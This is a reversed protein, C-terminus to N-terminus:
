GRLTPPVEVEYVQAHGTKDSTFVVYKGDPSFSPHPHTHQPAYVKIPGKEYPFPGKWHEGISSAEPHCLTIPKGIGDRPNFLQLGIDPFNTDAVMLTGYRNCIAHWANFSAVKRVAGTDAHVALIGRPWDIMVVERTGALWSEHTIWQGPQREYLRRNNTGDRHVVWVRDKLSVGYWILNPDDPCFQHHGISGRQLIVEWTGAQTDVIVMYAGKGTTCSVVCWRDDHSLGLHGNARVHASQDGPVVERFDGLPEEEYTGTNVRWCGIGATFYVYRGDHSPFISGEHLDPRDTLQVIVRAPVLEGTAREEAFIQQSGTRNSAFVLRRMADDYASVYFYPQQHIAPASTVQRVQAGTQEDTFAHSESPYRQGKAM